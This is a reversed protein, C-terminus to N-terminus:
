TGRLWRSTIVSSVASGELGMAPAGFHGFVLVYNGLANVGISLATIATAIGPRGLTSVFIRLVNAAVMPILALSLIAIFGGALASVRPDQGTALMIAEGFACIAMGALGALVSVWLAMRISRRVERLPHTRRGLEAAILPAVASTLGCLVWMMLGFLAVALSSAALSQQGLRAVFMVDIAYVAMQLINATALPVALRLTAGLESLFLSPRDRSSALPPAM